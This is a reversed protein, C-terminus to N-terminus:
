QEFCYLRNRSGCGEETSISGACATTWEDGVSKYNGWLASFGSSDTWNGCTVDPDHLSGDDGTSSWVLSTVNYCGGTSLDEVPEGAVDRSISNQLGKTTLETWNNAVIAKDMRIYPGDNHTFRDAVSQVTDSLWAKFNPNPEAGALGTLVDNNCIRDAGALGGMNGTYLGRSVFVRKAVLCKNIKCGWECDVYTGRAGTADCQYLRNPKTATDCVPTNPTCELCAGTAGCVPHSADKKACTIQDTGKACSQCKNAICLPATGSCQSHATCEV